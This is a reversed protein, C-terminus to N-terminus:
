ESREDVIAPLLIEMTTGIGPESEVRVTGDHAQVVGLTASLGLGRGTFKTSYFPEFIKQVTEPSMGCGNDIVTLCVYPGAMLFQRLRLAALDDESCDRVSTRITISGADNNFSEVSNTVLTTLVLELQQPDMKVHPLSEELELNLIVAPPLLTEIPFLTQKILSTLNLLEPEYFGQGSCALLLIGLEAAGDAASQAKQIADIAPSDGPLDELAFTLNGLVAHMSNNFRHAIGGAMLRLSEYKQARLIRENLRQHEQETRHKFLAIEVMAHLEQNSFPKIMYGYAGVQRARELIGSDAFATLFMVPIGFRDNIERAADIGDMGGSLKIDMLVLDPAEDPISEIARRAEAHVSTVHYGMDDLNNQLDMGVLSEDEVIMIGPKKM